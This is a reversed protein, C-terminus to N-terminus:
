GKSVVSVTCLPTPHARAHSARCNKGTTNPLHIAGKSSIKIKLLSFVCVITSIPAERRTRGESWSM